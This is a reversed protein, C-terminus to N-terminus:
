TVDDSLTASRFPFMGGGGGGGVGPGLLCFFGPRSLTVRALIGTYSKNNIIVSLVPSLNLTIRGKILALHMLNSYDVILRSGLTLLGGNANQLGIWELM